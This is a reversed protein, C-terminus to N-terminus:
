WLRRQWLGASHLALGEGGAAGEGGRLRGRGRGGGTGLGESGRQGGAVSAWGRALAM